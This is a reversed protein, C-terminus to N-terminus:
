KVNWTVYTWAGSAFHALTYTKSRKTPQYWLQLSGDLKEKVFIDPYVTTIRTGAPEVHMSIIYDGQVWVANGHIGTLEVTM